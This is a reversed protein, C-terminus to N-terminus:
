RAPFQLVSCNLLKGPELLQAEFGPQVARSDKAKGMISVAERLLVLAVSFLLSELTGLVQRIAYKRHVVNCIKQAGRILKM